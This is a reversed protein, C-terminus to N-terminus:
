TFCSIIRRDFYCNPRLCEIYVPPIQQYLKTPLVTRLNYYLYLEKHVITSMSLHFLSPIQTKFLPYFKLTYAIYYAISSQSGSVKTLSTNIPLNNAVQFHDGVWHKLTTDWKSCCCFITWGFFIKKQIRFTKQAIHKKTKETSNAIKFPRCKMTPDPNYVSCLPTCPRQTHIFLRTNQGYSPLLVPKSPALSKFDLNLHFTDDNVFRTLDAITFDPRETTYFNSHSTPSYCLNPTVPQYDKINTPDTTCLNASSNSFKKDSTAPISCDSVPRTQQSTIPWCFLKSCFTSLNM